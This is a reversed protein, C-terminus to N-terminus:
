LVYGHQRLLRLAETRDSAIRYIGEPTLRAARKGRAAGLTKGAIGRRTAGETTTLGNKSRSGARHSNIVQNMDAGDGIAKRQARTLDKVDDPGIVATTISAPDTTPVNICDCHPHRKFPVDSRSFKGSLVACRQCCPANAARVYGAGKRVFTGVGASQRFADAVMTQAVMDLWARGSDLSGSEKTHIKAGVLLSGLPRGDSAVGAFASASVLGDPSVSQGLEDLVDPVYTVGNRAAGLQAQTVVTLVKPGVRAWSADLNDFDMQAWATRTLALTAVTLRQQARYADSAAQPLM